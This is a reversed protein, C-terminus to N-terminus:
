GDLPGIMEVRFGPAIEKWSLVNLEPYAIRTWAKLIPRADADVVVVLPLGRELQMLMPKKLIEMLASSHEVEGPRWAGCASLHAQETMKSLQDPALTIAKIVREANAFRFSLFLAHVARAQEVQRWFPEKSVSLLAKLVPGLDRLPVREQLLACFIRWLELENMGQARIQLLLPQLAESGRLMYLCDVITFFDSWRRRLLELLHTCIVESSFSNMEEGTAERCGTKRDRQSLDESVRGGDAMEGRIWIQYEDAGLEIDWRVKLDPFPVGMESTLQSVKQRALQGLGDGEAETSERWNDGLM